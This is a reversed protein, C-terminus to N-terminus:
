FGHGTRTTCYNCHWTCTCTNTTECNRMRAQRQLCRCALEMFTTPLVLFPLPREAHLFLKFLSKGMLGGYHTFDYVFRIAQLQDMTRQMSTACFKFILKSKQNPPLNQLTFVVSSVKEQVHRLDLNLFYNQMACLYQEIRKRCLRKCLCFDQLSPLSNSIM